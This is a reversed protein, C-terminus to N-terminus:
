ILYTVLHHWQTLVAGLGTSSADVQDVFPCQFNPNVLVLPTVLAAKLDTFAQQYAPTWHLCNPQVKKLIDTLM